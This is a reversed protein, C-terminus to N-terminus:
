LLGIQEKKNGGLDLDYLESELVSLAGDKSRFITRGDSKGYFNM